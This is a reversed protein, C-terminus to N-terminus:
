TFQGRAKRMEAVVDAATQPKEGETAVPRAIQPTPLPRLGEKRQQRNSPPQGQPQATPVGISRLWERTQKGAEEMVKGPSWEPHEAAIADTRRDALAFLEPDSAIDRYNTQFAEFGEKLARNTEREVLKREAVEAAQRTIADVDIPAVPAQRVTKLVEALKAAAKDESETVLSRVLEVAKTDLARDDIPAVQATSRARAALEAETRRLQEARADLQKQLASAQRLREDGAGIKQMERHAVELPILREQGDVRTKFMPKGDVRVVWQGLADDGKNSVREAPKVVPARPAPEEIQPEPEPTTEIVPAEAGRAEATMKQHLLWAAPDVDSSALFEEQEKARKAEVQADMRALLEDRATLRPDRGPTKPAAAKPDVAPQPNQATVGIETTM